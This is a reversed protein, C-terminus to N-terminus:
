QACRCVLPRSMYQYAQKFALVPVFDQADGRLPGPLVVAGEPILVLKYQEKRVQGQHFASLREVLSMGNASSRGAVSIFDHICCFKILSLQLLDSISMM